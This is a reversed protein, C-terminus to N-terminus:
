LHWRPLKLLAVIVAPDETRFIFGKGEHFAKVRWTPWKLPQARELDYGCGKGVGAPFFVPPEGEKPNVWVFEPKDSM